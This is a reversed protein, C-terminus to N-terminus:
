FIAGFLSIILQIIVALAALGIVAAIWAGGMGMFLGGLVGGTACLFLAVMWNMGMAVTFTAYAIILM